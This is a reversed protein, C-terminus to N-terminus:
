IWLTREAQNLANFLMLEPVSNPVFSTSSAIDVFWQSTEANRIALGVVKTNNAVITHATSYIESPSACVNLPILITMIPVRNYASSSLMLSSLTINAKNQYGDIRCGLRSM